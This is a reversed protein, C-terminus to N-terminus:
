SLESTANLEVCPTLISMQQKKTAGIKSLSTSDWCYVFLFLHHHTCLLRLLLGGPCYAPRSTGEGPWNFVHWRDKATSQALIDSGRREALTM